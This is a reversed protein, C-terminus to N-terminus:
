VVVEETEALYAEWDLDVGLGPLEPMKVHGDEVRLPNKLATHSGREFPPHVELMSANQIGGNVHVPTFGWMNGGASVHVRAGFAEALHALKVMETIGGSATPQPKIGDAAGLALMQCYGHLQEPFYEGAVVQIDLADCVKKLGTYDHDRLPEEFWLFDQEELIRGVRIAESVDYLQVADHMLYFDPGVVQRLEKALDKMFRVGAYCHDKSGQYGQEKVEVAHRIFHEMKEGEPGMTGAQTRYAPVRDRCAGLLRWIPQNLKKGAIDWLAIDVHGRLSRPFWRYREWRLMEQWLREREMPNQGILMEGAEGKLHLAVELPVGNSWGEIEQDTIIRLMGQPPGSPGAQSSRDLHVKLDVIKVPDSDPPASSGDAGAALYCVHRYFSGSRVTVTM